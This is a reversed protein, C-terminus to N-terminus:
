SRLEERIADRVHTKIADQREQAARELWKRQGRGRFSYEGPESEHLRAAYETDYSVYVQFEADVIQQPTDPWVSGSRELTGEDHPVTRNAHELLHEAAEYLGQAAARQVRESVERGQWNFRFGTM